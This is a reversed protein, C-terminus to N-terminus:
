GSPRSGPQILGSEYALVVAQVRDRLHLKTLMRAVHTKVTAESVYLQAAIEASSRGRAVLHTIRARTETLAALESPPRAALPSRAFEEIM